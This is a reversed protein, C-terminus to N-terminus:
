IALAPRSSAKMSRAARERSREDAVGDTARTISYGDADAKADLLGDRGEDVLHQGVDRLAVLADLQFDLRAPVDVRHALHAVSDM